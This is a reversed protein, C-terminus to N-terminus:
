LPKQLNLWNHEAVQGAMFSCYKGHAQVLIICWLTKIFARVLIAEQRSKSDMELERKPIKHKPNHIIQGCIAGSFKNFIFSLFKGTVLIIKPIKLTQNPKKFKKTM